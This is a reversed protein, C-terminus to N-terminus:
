PKGHHCHRRDVAFCRDEENSEGQNEILPVYRLDMKSRVTGRSIARRALAGIRQEDPMGGDPGAARLPNQLIRVYENLMTVDKFDALAECQWRIIKSTTDDDIRLALM